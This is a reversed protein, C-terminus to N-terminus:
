KQGEVSPRQGSRQNVFARGKERFLIPGHDHAIAWLRDLDDDTLGSPTTPPSAADTATLSTAESPRPAHGNCRECVNGNGPLPKACVCNGRM